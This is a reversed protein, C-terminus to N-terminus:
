ISQIEKPTLFVHHRGYRFSVVEHYCTRCIGSRFDDMVGFKRAFAKFDASSMYLLRVKEPLVTGNSFRGKLIEDLTAPVA